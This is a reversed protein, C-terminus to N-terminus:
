PLSELRKLAEKCRELLEEESIADSTNARLEPDACFADVEAFLGDLIAFVDDSFFSTEIKFAQIYQREFSSADITGAVFEKLLHIYRNVQADQM